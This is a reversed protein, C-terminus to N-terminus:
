EDEDEDEEDVEEDWDDDLGEDDQDIEDDDEDLDEEDEEDEDDEDEAHGAVVPAWLQGASECPGVPAEKEELNNTFLVVTTLTSSV